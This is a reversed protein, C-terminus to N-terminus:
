EDLVPFSSPHLGLKFAAASCPQHTEGKTARGSMVRRADKAELAAGKAIPLSRPCTTVLVGCGALIGIRAV